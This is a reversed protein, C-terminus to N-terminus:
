RGTPARAPAWPSSCRSATTLLRIPTRCEPRRIRFVALEDVDGRALADGVRADFHSSRGPPQGTTLMERTTLPLGHTM